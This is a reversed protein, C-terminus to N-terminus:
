HIVSYVHQSNSYLNISNFTGTGPSGTHETIVSTVGGGVSSVGGEVNLYRSQRHTRYDGIHGGGVM